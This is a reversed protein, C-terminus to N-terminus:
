TWYLLWLVVVVAATVFQWYLAIAGFADTSLSRRITRLILLISLLALALVHLALTGALLYYCSLYVNAWPGSTTTTEAAPTNLLTTWQWALIALFTIATTSAIAPLVLSLREPGERTYERPLNPPPSKSQQHHEDNSHGGGLRGRLVPLPAPTRRGASTRFRRAALTVAACGVLMVGVAIVAATGNLIASSDRFLEGNGGRLVLYAAILGSFLMLDAALLLLMGLRTPSPLDAWTPSAAVTTSELRDALPTIM